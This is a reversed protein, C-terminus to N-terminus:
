KVIWRWASVSMRASAAIQGRGPQYDLLVIPQDSDEGSRYAWMTMSQVAEGNLGCLCVHGSTPPSRSSSLVDPKKSCSWPVTRIEQGTVLTGIKIEVLDCGRLKSDIALDFLARDRMRGERDPFFRIGLDAATEGAEKRRGEPRREM